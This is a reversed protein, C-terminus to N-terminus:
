FVKEPELEKAKLDKFIQKMAMDVLKDSEKKIPKSDWWEVSLTSSDDNMQLLFKPWHTHVAYVTEKEKDNKVIVLFRPVLKM